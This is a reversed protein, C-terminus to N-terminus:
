FAVDDEVELDTLEVRGADPCAHAFACRGCHEGPRAEFEQDRYMEWTVALLGDRAADVDEREPAWRAERGSELYVWRVREVHRAYEDEVALLYAQAASEDPLEDDDLVWRGTKYDIVELTGLRDPKADGDIRDVKGYLVVGNALRTEVWRERALPVAGVDFNAAFDSLLRLGKEGWDREEERTAFTDPKRYKPWVARLCRHLTQEVPQRDEPRLGFFKELAAHVANGLMLQPSPRERRPVKVVLQYFVQRPCVRYRDIATPSIRRPL